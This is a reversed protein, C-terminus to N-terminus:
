PEANSDQAPGAARPPAGFTWGLRVGATVLAHIKQDTITTWQPDIAAVDAMRTYKGFSVGLWPSITLGGAISYDAGAMADVAFGTLNSTTGSSTSTREMAFTERAFGLGVWPDLREKPLFNWRAQAGVRAQSVLCDAGGADCNDKFAGGVVGFDMQLFAALTLQDAFKWGAQLEVPIMVSVADSMKDTGGISGTPKVLGTGLGLVVGASATAPLTVAAAAVMLSLWTRRM